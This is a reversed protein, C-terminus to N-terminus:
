DPVDFVYVFDQHSGDPLDATDSCTERRRHASLSCTEVHRYGGMDSLTTILSGGSTRICGLRVGTPAGMVQSPTGNCVGDWVRKIKQGNAGAFTQETNLSCGDDRMVGVYDLPVHQGPLMKSEAENAYFTGNFLVKSTIHGTACAAVLVIGVFAFRM